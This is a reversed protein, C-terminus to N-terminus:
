LDREKGLRDRIRDVTEGVRLEKILQQVSRRKLYWPGIIAVAVAGALNFVLDMVTDSLSYQMRTGFLADLFYEVVEWFVGMAMVFIIIFFPLFRPPLYISPLYKDAIVIGIFGFGAILGTSLFHTLKDWWWITDYFKMFLGLNHLFVAIFIWLVLEWPLAVINRRRLLGPVNVLFFGFLASIAPYLYGEIFSFFFIGLLSFQFVFSVVIQYPLITM